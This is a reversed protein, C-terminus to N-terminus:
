YVNARMRDAVGRSYILDLATLLNLSVCKVALVIVMRWACLCIIGPMLKAVKKLSTEHYREVKRILKSQKAAASHLYTCCM